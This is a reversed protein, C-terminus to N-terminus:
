EAGGDRAGVRDRLIGRTIIEEMPIKAMLITRGDTEWVLRDGRKIGAAAQIAAPISVYLARSIKVVRSIDRTM